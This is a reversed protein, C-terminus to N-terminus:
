RGMDLGDEFLDLRRQAANFTKASYAGIARERDLADQLADLYKDQLEHFLERDSQAIAQQHRAPARMMMEIRSEMKKALEPSLSRGDIELESMPGLQAVASDLLSTMLGSVEQKSKSASPSSFKLARILAPLTGGFVILTAVAVLFAVLIISSRHILPEGAATVSITQAAALTVVGRMGAWSLVLAGRRTIPTSQAFEIDASTRELRRQLKEARWSEILNQEVADNFRETTADLRRIKRHSRAATLRTGAVAIAVGGFRMVLLLAFVIISAQWVFDLNHETQARHFLDAIQLGMLLFVLHELIFSIVTWMTVSYNRDTATLHKTAKHGCIVGAVVVAIVGSAELEEAIFFATWPTLLAISTSLVPDALWRRAKTVLQGVIFGVVIGALTAWVFSGAAQWLSFSGALAALATRLTVLASADNFLSEGELVAMLRPPLGLRKGISTAAVADIPAVVAGLAIALAISIEPFVLHIVAGIIIAPLVVMAMSLWIIMGANRRLDVVPMNSATSFLLPPLFGALVLEPELEVDPIFSPFSAAIGLCLLLLPAAIGTRASSKAAFIVAMLGAALFVFIHVVCM